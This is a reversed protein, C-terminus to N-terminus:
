EIFRSKELMLKEIDKAKRPVCGSLNVPDGKTILIDDEIRV